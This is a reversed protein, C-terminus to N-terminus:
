LERRKITFGAAELNALASNAIAATHSRASTDDLELLDWCLEIGERLISVIEERASQVEKM